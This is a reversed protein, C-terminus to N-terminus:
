PSHITYGKLHFCLFRVNVHTDNGLLENRNKELRIVLFRWDYGLVLFGIM